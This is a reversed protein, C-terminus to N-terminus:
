NAAPLQHAYCVEVGVTGNPVDSAMESAYHGHNNTHLLLYVDTPKQSGPPLEAFGTAFV